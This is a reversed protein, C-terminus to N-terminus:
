EFSTQWQNPEYTILNYYRHDKAEEKEGNKGDRMLKWPTAALDNAYIRACALVASVEVAKRWSMHNLTNAEIAAWLDASIDVANQPESRGFMSTIRSLVGMM